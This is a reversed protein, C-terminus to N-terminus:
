RVCPNCCACCSSAAPANTQQPPAQQGAFASNAACPRKRWRHWAARPLQRRASRAPPRPRPRRACGFGAIFQHGWLLGFFHYIFMYQLTRDWGVAYYCRPDAACEAATVNAGLASAPPLAPPAPLAATGNVTNYLV